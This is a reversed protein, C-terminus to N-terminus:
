ELGGGVGLDTRAVLLQKHVAELKDLYVEISAKCAEILFEGGPDRHELDHVYMLREYDGPSVLGGDLQVQFFQKLGDYSGDVNLIGLPKEQYGLQNYQMWIAGELLSGVGGKTWLAGDSFNEFFLNREYMDRTIVKGGRREVVLVKAPHVDHHSKIFITGPTNPVGEKIDLDRTSVQITSGGMNIAGENVMLMM